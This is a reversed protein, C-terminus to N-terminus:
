TLSVPPFLFYSIQYSHNALHHLNGSYVDKNDCGLSFGFLVKTIYDETLYCGVVMVFKLVFDYQGGWALALAM